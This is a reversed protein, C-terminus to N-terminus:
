SSRYAPHLCWRRRALRMIRASCRVIRAPRASREPRCDMMIAMPDMSTARGTVAITSLPDGPTAAMMSMARIQTMTPIM